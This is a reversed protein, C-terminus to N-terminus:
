IVKFGAPYIGEYFWVSMHGESRTSAGKGHDPMIQGTAIKKNKFREPFTQALDNLHQANEYFSAGYFCPELANKPNRWRSRQEPDKYTPLFDKADPNDKSVFRYLQMNLETAYDPPVVINSPFDRPWTKNSM